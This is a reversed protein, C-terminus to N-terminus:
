SIDGRAPRCQRKFWRAFGRIRNILHRSEIVAYSTVKRVVAYTAIAVAGLVIVKAGVTIAAGAAVAKAVEGIGVLMTGIGIPFVTANGMKIRAEAKDAREALKEAFERLWRSVFDYFMPDNTRQDQQCRWILKLQESPNEALAQVVARDFKPKTLDLYATRMARFFRESPSETSEAALISSITVVAMAIRGPFGMVALEACSFLNSAFTRGEAASQLCMALLGTGRSQVAM